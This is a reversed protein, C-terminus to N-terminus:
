LILFSSGPSTSPSGGRFLTGALTMHYEDIIGRQLMQKSIFIINLQHSPVFLFALLVRYQSVGSIPRLPYFYISGVMFKFQIRSVYPETQTRIAHIRKTLHAITM